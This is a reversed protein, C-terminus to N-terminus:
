APPVIVIIYRTPADAGGLFHRSLTVSYHSLAGARANLRAMCYAQEEPCVLAIGYRIIRADDAWPTDRPAGIDIRLPQSPLYFGAGNVINTNSGFLRLPAATRSRWADDVAAAILRYHSAHNPVGQLHIAYAVAPSILIAGVPLIAAAALVGVASKRSVVIARSSMLLAPLMSWMPLTWLTALRTDLALALPIPALFVIATVILLLRRDPEAPLLM